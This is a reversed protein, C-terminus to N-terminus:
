RKVKKKEEMRKGQVVGTLLMFRISYRGSQQSRADKQPLTFPFNISPPSYFFFSFFICSENKYIRTQDSTLASVTIEIKFIWASSRNKKKKVYM